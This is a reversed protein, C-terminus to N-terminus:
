FSITNLIKKVDKECIAKNKEEQPLSLTFVTSTESDFYFDITQVKGGNGTKVERAKYGNFDINESSIIDVLKNRFLVGPNFVCGALKKHGLRINDDALNWSEPPYKFSFASGIGIKSGKYIKWNYTNDTDTKQFKLTLLMRDLINTEEEMNVKSSTNSRVVLSISWCSSNNRLTSYSLSNYTSGAAGESGTEKTFKINNITVEKKEIVRTSLPNSCEQVNNAKITKILIYKDSIAPNKTLPLLSIKVENNKETTIKTEAPYSIEYGGSVSKYIKWDSTKESNTQKQKNNIEQNATNKTEKFQQSQQKEIQHKVGTTTSASNFKKSGIIYGLSGFLLGSIVVASIVTVLKSSSSSFLEQKM